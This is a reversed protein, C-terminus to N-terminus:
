IGRVIAAARSRVDDNRARRNAAVEEAIPLAEALSFTHDAIYKDTKYSNRPEMTFMRARSLRREFGDRIAWADGGLSTRSVTIDNDDEDVHFSYRSANKAYKAIQDAQEFGLASV